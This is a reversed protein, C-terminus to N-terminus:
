VPGRETSDQVTSIGVFVQRYPVIDIESNESSVCTGTNNGGTESLM